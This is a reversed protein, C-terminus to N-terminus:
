SLRSSMYLNLTVCGNCVQRQSHRKMTQHHLLVSGNLTLLYCIGIRNLGNDECVDCFPFFAECEKAMQVVSPSWDFHHDFVEESIKIMVLAPKGFLLHPCFSELERHMRGVFQREESGVTENVDFCIVEAFYRVISPLSHEQTWSILCITPKIIHIVMSIMSHPGIADLIAHVAFLVSATM